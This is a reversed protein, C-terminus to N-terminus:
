KILNSRYKELFLLQFELQEKTFESTLCSYNMFNLCKELETDLGFTILDESKLEWPHTLGLWHGTEHILTSGTEFRFFGAYSIAATNYYRNFFELSVTSPDIVPTFGLLVREPSYPTTKLIFINYSNSDIYNQSFSTWKVDKLENGRLINKVYDEYYWTLDKNDYIYHITDNMIFKIKGQYAANLLFTGEALLNYNFEKSLKADVTDLVMHYQIRVIPRKTLHISDKIIVPKDLGVNSCEPPYQDITQPRNCATILM